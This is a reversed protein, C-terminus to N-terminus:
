AYYQEVFWKGGDEFYLHKTKNGIRVTYRIGIGGAKMSARKVKEIVRDIEFERTDEWIIKEPHIDGELDFRGVVEVYVKKYM